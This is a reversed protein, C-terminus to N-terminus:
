GRIDEVQKIISKDKCFKSEEPLSTFEFFMPVHSAERPASILYRCNGTEIIGLPTDLAYGIRLLNRFSIGQYIYGLTRDSGNGYLFGIAAWTSLKAGFRGRDRAHDARMGVALDLLGDEDFDAFFPAVIKIEANLFRPSHTLAENKRHVTGKVKEAYARARTLLPKMEKEAYQQIPVISDILSKSSSAFFFYQPGSISSTAVSPTTPKGSIKNIKGTGILALPPALISRANILTKTQRTIDFKVSSLTIWTGNNNLTFLNKDPLSFPRNACYDRMLPVNAESIKLHPGNGLHLKRCYAWVGKIEKGDTFFLPEVFAKSEPELKEASVLYVLYFKNNQIKTHGTQDCAFLGLGFFITLFIVWSTRNGKYM